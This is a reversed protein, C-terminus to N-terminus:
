RAYFALGLKISTSNDSDYTWVEFDRKAGLRATFHKREAPRGTCILKPASQGHDSRRLAAQACRSTLAALAAVTSPLSSRACSRVGTAHLLHLRLPGAPLVGVM